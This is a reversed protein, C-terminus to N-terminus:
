CNNGRSTGSITNKEVKADHGPCEFVYEAFLVQVFFLDLKEQRGFPRLLLKQEPAPQLHLEAVQIVVDVEPPQDFIAVDALLVAQVAAQPAAVVPDPAVAEAVVLHQGAGVEGVLEAVPGHGQLAALAAIGGEDVLDFPEHPLDLLDVGAAQADGKREALLALLGVPAPEVGPRVAVQQPDLARGLLEIVPDVGVVLQVAEAPPEVAQFAQLADAVLGTGPDHDAQGALRQVVQGVVQEEELPHIHRHDPEAGVNGMGVGRQVAEPVEDRRCLLAHVHRELHDGDQADHHGLDVHHRGGRVLGDVRLSPFLGDGSPGIDDHRVERGPFVALAIEDIGVLGADFVLRVLALGAQVDTERGDAVLEEVVGPAVRQRKGFFTFIM